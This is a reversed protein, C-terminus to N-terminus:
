GAFYKAGDLQRTRRLCAFDVRDWVAARPVLSRLVCLLWQGHWHDYCLIMVWRIRVCVLHIVPRLLPQAVILWTFQLDHKFVSIQSKSARYRAWYRWWGLIMRQSYQLHNQTFIWSLQTETACSKLSHVRQSTWPPVWCLCTCTILMYVPLYNM